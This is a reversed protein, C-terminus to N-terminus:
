SRYNWVVDDVELPGFLHHFPITVIWVPNAAQLLTDSKEPGTAITPGHYGNCWTVWYRDEIWTVRPDYKYESEIMETNGAKFQIPEHNIDWHIGDKSFGAFINMQVAKNDCRFVGAFGDEFPVVASNFISNSSPIHYRGIVPNQSYRWMVDTCGVPREEWPIQIKNM